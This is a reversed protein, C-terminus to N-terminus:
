TPRRPLVYTAQGEEFIHGDITEIWWVVDVKPSGDQIYKSVVESKVIAIDQTLGHTDVFRGRMSPARDLYHIALPNEPVQLGLDPFARPDMITWRLNELDARDGAWNTLHRIAFDRGMYNVLPSRKQGERHIQTTDIAGEAAAPAGPMTVPEPTPPVQVQRDLPRYIGDTQGRVLTAFTTPDMIERKLTRSGGAGMGWPPIPSVSVDIPGELTWAPRDGVKVDEWFLPQDGRRFEKAWIDRITAWDADTYVHAPRRMWDPAVWIDAFSPNASVPGDRRVRVNETVRFIVDSVKEARQNYVAGKTQIVVNRFTSGSPPTLDLVTREDAVLYLTDGPYIPRHNTLEHNLESVLLRDRATTPWPVMFSDDHAGFSPFALIDAFGLRRAYAADNRLPSEADYKANNYRVWAETAHIVPGLGPTDAPLRGAVLARVDIPGRDSIARNQALYQAVLPAERATYVGPYLTEYQSAEDPATTEAPTAAAPTSVLSLTLGLAAILALAPGRRRNSIRIV